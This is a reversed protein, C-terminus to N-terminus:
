MVWVKPGFVGSPPPPPPEPPIDTWGLVELYALFSQAQYADIETYEVYGVFNQTTHIDATPTIQAPDGTYEVYGVVHQAQYVDGAETYEVYGAVHQAQYATVETYEVYGVFNQTTHIDATPTIQAPDGVYEVYGVFHQTQPLSTM